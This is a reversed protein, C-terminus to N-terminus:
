NKLARDILAKTLNEVTGSLQKMTGTSESVAELVSDVRKHVDSIEKRNEHTNTEVRNGLEDFKTQAEARNSNVQTKLSDLERRTAFQSVLTIVATVSPAAAFGGLIWYNM